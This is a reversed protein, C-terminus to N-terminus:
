SLPWGNRCPPDATTPLRDGGAARTYAWHRIAPQVPADITNSPVAFSALTRHVM